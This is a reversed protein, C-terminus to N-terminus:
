RKVKSVKSDETEVSRKASDCTFIMDLMHRSSEQRLFPKMQKMGCSVDSDNATLLWLSTTWLSSHNPWTVQTGPTRPTGPEGGPCPSVSPQGPARQTDQINGARRRPMAKCLASGPDRPTRSTGPEGGPCPSASPQGPARQTDQTNGARRRPVPECLASGPSEPRGPHERIEEQAHAGLPNVRPERPTRPTRLTDQTDRARRGPVPECLVSTPSEPAWQSDALPWHGPRRCQPHTLHM